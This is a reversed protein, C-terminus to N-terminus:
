RESVQKFAVVDRRMVRATRGDPHTWLVGHLKENDALYKVLAPFEVPVDPLKEAETAAILTPADFREVNPNIGPGGLWYCGPTPIWDPDAATRAEIAEVLLAFLPGTFSSWGNAVRIVWVPGDADTQNALALRLGSYLRTAEGHGSPVWWCGPAIVPTIPRLPHAPDRLFLSLTEDPFMM